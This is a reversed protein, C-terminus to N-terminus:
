FVTDHIVGLVSAADWPYFAHLLRILNKNLYAAVCFYGAFRM